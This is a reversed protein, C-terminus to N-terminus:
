EELQKRVIDLLRHAHKALEKADALTVERDQYEVENKRDLVRQLHQGIERKAPSSSSAVLSLSEHYDTGGSRKGLHHVLFADVASISAQVAAVAVASANGQDIGWDVAKILQEARRLYVLSRGRPVDITRLPAM